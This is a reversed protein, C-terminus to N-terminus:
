PEPPIAAQSLLPLRQSPFRTRPRPFGGRGSGDGKEGECGGREWPTAGVWFGPPPGASGGAAGGGSFGEGVALFCPSSSLFCPQSCVRRLQWWWTTVWGTGSKLSVHPPDTPRWGGSRAAPGPQKGAVCRGPVQQQCGAARGREALHRHAQPERIGHLDPHRQQRGEGGRVAAADGHLHPSSPPCLSVGDGGRDWASDAEHHCPSPTPAAVRLSPVGWSGGRGWFPAGFHLRPEPQPSLLTVPATGM